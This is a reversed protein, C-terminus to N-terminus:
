NSQFLVPFQTEYDREAPPFQWSMAMRRVCGTLEPREDDPSVDVGVVEGSRAIQLRVDFRLRQKLGVENRLEREFCARLAARKGSVVSLVTPEAGPRSEAPLEPSREGVLESEPPVASPTAGEGEEGGEAAEAGRHAKLDIPFLRYVTAVQAAPCQLTDAAEAPAAQAEAAGTRAQLIRMGAVAVLVALGDIMARSWIPHAARKQPRPEAPEDEM